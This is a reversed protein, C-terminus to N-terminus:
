LTLGNYLQKTMKETTIFAWHWQSYKNHLPNIKLIEDLSKGDKILNQIITKTDELMAISSELDQKNALEGHGPIIKTNDDVLALVAKQAKIYGDISGGNDFDIYPFMKNFLIDGMHIVNLNTFHIVADGDTHAHPLHFVHAENGNLHFSISESFTIVPLASKPADVKGNETTIGKTLLNIRLNKHAVIHAGNKGLIHNNGTHDGHVHTNILFDIDNSTIDALAENMIDLSSPMADDILVVGDDGVSLGLNGGTFGGVGVLMYLGDAVETAQWSLTVEEQSKKTVEETVTDQAFSVFSYCVIVVFFLNKCCQM